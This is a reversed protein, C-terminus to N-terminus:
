AALIGYITFTSGALFTSGVATITIRNIASTSRWMGSNLNVESLGYSYETITTKFISTSAYDQINMTYAASVTTPMGSNIPVYISNINSYTGSSSIATGPPSGTQAGYMTLTSYNNATDNNFQTLFPIGTTSAGVSGVLVLDTYTSPISTFDIVATASSLTNTAIKDYTVPM